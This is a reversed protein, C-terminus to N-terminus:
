LVGDPRKVTGPLDEVKAKIFTVKGTHEKSQDYFTM